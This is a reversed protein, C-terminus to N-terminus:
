KLGARRRGESIADRKEQDERADADATSPCNVIFVGERQYSPMKESPPKENSPKVVNTVDSEQCVGPVDTPVYGEKCALAPMALLAILILPKM